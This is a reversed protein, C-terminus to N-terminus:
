CTQPHGVAGGLKLNQRKVNQWAVLNRRHPVLLEGLSNLCFSYKIREEKVKPNEM